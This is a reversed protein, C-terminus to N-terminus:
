AAQPPLPRRYKIHESLLTSLKRLQDGDWSVKVIDFLEDPALAKIIDDPATSKSKDPEAVGGAPSKKNKTGTAKPKAILKRALRVTLDTVTVSQAKAAELIADQKEYLRIYLTATEYALKPCKERLYEQWGGKANRRARLLVLMEGLAVARTYTSREAALDIGVEDNIRKILESNGLDSLPETMAADGM